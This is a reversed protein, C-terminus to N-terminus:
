GLLPTADMYMSCCPLCDIVERQMQENGCKRFSSLKPVWGAERLYHELTEADYLAHHNEGVISWLRVAETPANACEENMDGLYGLPSDVWDGYYGAILSKADPVIIRMFGDPKIVRRCERLFALGERYTLHELMHASYILDVTGTNVNAIGNRVDMHAFRYGYQGAFQSVDLTDVNVWGNHFCTWACGINLKNKGDGRLYDEPLNGGRLENVSLIEHGRPMKAQWWQKSRITVRTADQGDDEGVMTIGHLGRGCTREMEAIMPDLLHEPVHEWFSLSFCLDPKWGNLPWPIQSLDHKVIKDSVRTLYCSNAIDIGVVDDIGADELRKLVYGRGEGLSLVSQPKRALVNRAVIEYSPHDWYFPKYGGQKRGGNFYDRDFTKIPDYVPALIKKEMEEAMRDALIENVAKINPLGDMKNEVPTLMIQNPAVQIPGDWDVVPAREMPKVAEVVMDTQIGQPGLPNGCPKVVINEYGADQLFKVITKPSFAARHSNEPYDLDGFIMSGEDGDWEPKSLIYKMQNETNPIVFVAKGNPKLVRLVEALFQPVKRWSIHELVYVALAGDFENAKIADGFPENFDLTFDTVQNGNADHCMRVDVCVDHGGRCQPNLKPNAGGGFEILKDGERRQFQIM